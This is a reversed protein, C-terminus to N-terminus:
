AVIERNPLSSSMVEIKVHRIADANITTSVSCGVKDCNLQRGRPSINMQRVNSPATVNLARKDWIRPLLSSTLLKSNNNNLFICQFKLLFLTCNGDTTIIRVSLWEM